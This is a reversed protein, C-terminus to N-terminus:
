YKYSVGLSVMNNTFGTQPASSKLATRQIDFILGFSRWVSYIASMGVTYATDHRNSGGFTELTLGGRGAVTLEPALAFSTQGLLSTVKTSMGVPSTPSTALLSAGITQDLSANITLEPLPFYSVSGGFVPGRASGIAASKYNEAQYGAFLEGQFLGFRDSGLGAVSRFGSSSLATAAYNRKDISTQLYAYIDPIIWYGGRSSGTFTVGNSSPATMTSSSDYTIDVISGSLIVFVDSFSKQASASGTLQNYPLPNASPVVGVGTPNLNFINNAVGISSSLFSTQRTFEGQANIIFDSVPQYTEIVGTRTSINNSSNGGTTDQNVYFQADTNSYILTKKIGDDNQATTNTTLHLGPSARGGAPNNDPNTAFVVGVVSSPFVLWNGIPLAETGRGPKAFLDPRGTYVSPPRILQGGGYATGQTGGNNDAPLDPGITTSQYPAGSAGATGVAATVWFLTACGCRIARSLCLTMLLNWARGVFADISSEVILLAPPPVESRGPRALAIKFM